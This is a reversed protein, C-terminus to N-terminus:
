RDRDDDPDPRSWRGPRGVIFGAIAGALGVAVIVWILPPAFEFWLFRLRAPDANQVAFLIVLV